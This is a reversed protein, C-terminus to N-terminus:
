EGQAEGILAAIQGPLAKSLNSNQFHREETVDRGFWAPPIFAMAEDLTEFEVEVVMLGTFIGEFVDLEAMYSDLPVLYRRKSIM